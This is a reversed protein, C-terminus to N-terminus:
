LGSTCGLIIPFNCVEGYINIEKRLNNYIQAPFPNRANCAVDEALMLIINSDPIGSQKVMHYFSLTNAVHRYNFWFRSSCVLVAWNNSHAGFCIFIGAVFLFHSLKM